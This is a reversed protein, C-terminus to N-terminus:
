CTLDCRYIVSHTLFSVFHYFIESQKRKGSYGIIFGMDLPFDAVYKDDLTDVDSCVLLTSYISVKVLLLIVYKSM